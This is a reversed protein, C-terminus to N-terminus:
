RGDGAQEVTIKSMKLDGDFKIWADCRRGGWNCHPLMHRLQGREPKGVGDEQFCCSRGREAVGEEGESM